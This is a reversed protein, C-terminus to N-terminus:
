EVQLEKLDAEAKKCRKKYDEYESRAENRLAKIRFYVTLLPRIEEPPIALCKPCFDGDGSGSCSVSHSFSEIEGKQKCNWCVAKGCGMCINILEEGGCVDCIDIEVTKSKKM